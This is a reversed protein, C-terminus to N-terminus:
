EHFVGDTLWGHWHGDNILISPKLTPKDYNMNWEWGNPVRPKLTVGCIIGCGCPCVFMLRGPLSGDEDIGSWKFDGPQKLLEIDDGEVRNGIVSM